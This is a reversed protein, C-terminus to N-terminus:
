LKSLRELSAELKQSADVRPSVLQDDVVVEPEVGELPRVFVLRSNGVERQAFDVLARAILLPVVTGSRLAGLAIRVREEPSFDVTAPFESTRKRQRKHPGVQAERSEIGRFRGVLPDVENVEKKDPRGISVEDEIQEAIWALGQRRLLDLLESYL